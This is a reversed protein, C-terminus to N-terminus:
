QQKEEQIANIGNMIKGWYQHMTLLTQRGNRTLKYYKRAPGENSEELSYEVLGDHKLRSLIPYITGESIVLGEIERLKRVIDYGYQRSGSLSKLICYELIGKRLQTTWNEFFNNKMGVSYLM